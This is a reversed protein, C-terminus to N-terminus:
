YGTREGRRNPVDQARERMNRCMKLLTAKGSTNLLRVAGHLRRIFDARTEIGEPASEFLRTRLHSWVEEIVNLDQSSTPYHMIPHLHNARLAQISGGAVM